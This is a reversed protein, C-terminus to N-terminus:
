LPLSIKRIARVSFQNDKATAENYGYTTYLVIAQNGNQTSSWYLFSNSLEIAGIISGYSSYGSLTRNVEFRNGYLLNLEDTAPLYWDSKGNNTSDLCLKAASEVHGIQNVIANSNELGNWSSDAASFPIQTLVNSWVVDNNGLDTTDVILYNQNTDDIYRHFIVGGESPVYQGIYYTFDDGVGTTTGDSDKISLDGNNNLGIAKFGVPVSGTLGSTQLYIRKPM